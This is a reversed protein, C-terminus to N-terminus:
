FNSSLTSLHDPCALLAATNLDVQDRPIWTRNGTIMRLPGTPCGVLVWRPQLLCGATGCGLGVLQPHAPVQTPSISLTFTARNGSQGIWTQTQRPAERLVRRSRASVGSTAHNPCTTQTHSLRVAYVTHRSPGAQGNQQNPNNREEEWVMPSNGREPTLCGLYRQLDHYWRTPRATWYLLTLCAQGPSM